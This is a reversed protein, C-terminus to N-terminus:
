VCAVGRVKDVVDMVSACETPLWVAVVQTRRKDFLLQMTDRAARAAAEALAATELGGAMYQQVAAVLGEHGVRREDQQSLQGLAAPLFRPLQELARARAYVSRHDFADLQRCAVLGELCDLFLAWRLREPDGAAEAEAAASAGGGGVGDKKGGFRHRGLAQLLCADLQQAGAAMSLLVRLRSAHLRYLADRRATKGDSRELAAAYHGMFAGVWGPEQAEVLAHPPRQCQQQLPQQQQQALLRAFGLKETLKGLLFPLDWRRHRASGGARQELEQHRTQTVCQPMNPTLVRFM